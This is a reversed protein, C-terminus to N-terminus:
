RTPLTSVLRKNSFKVFIGKVTFPRPSKFTTAIAASEAVRVEKATLNIAKSAIFPIEKKHFGIVSGVVDNVTTSVKIDVM